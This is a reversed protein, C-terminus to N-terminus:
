INELLPSPGSPRGLWTLNQANSKVTKKLSCKYRTTLSPTLVMMPFSSLSFLRLSLSSLNMTRLLYRSSAPSPSTTRPPIVLGGILGSALLFGICSCIVRCLRSSSARSALRCSLVGLLLNQFRCFPHASVSFVPRLNISVIVSPSFSVFFVIHIFKQVSTPLRTSPLFHNPFAYV